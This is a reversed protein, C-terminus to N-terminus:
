ETWESLLKRLKTALVAVAMVDMTTMNRSGQEALDKIIPTLKESLETSSVMRANKFFRYHKIGGVTKIETKANGRGDKVMGALSREAEDDKADLHKAIVPLSHWKADAFKEIIKKPHGKPVTSKSLSTEAQMLKAIERFRRREDGETRVWFSRFRGETLNNPLSEPNVVNTTFNLFRGFRLRLSIWDQSKGEKKALEEQTWGSQHFLAALAQEFKAGAEARTDGYLERLRTREADYSAESMRTNSVVTLVPGRDTNLLADSM